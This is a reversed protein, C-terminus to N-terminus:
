TPIQVKVKTFSINNNSYIGAWAHSVLLKHLELYLNALMLNVIKKVHIVSDMKMNYIDMQVLWVNIKVWVHIM